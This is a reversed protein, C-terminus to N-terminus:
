SLLSDLLPPLGGLDDLVYDPRPACPDELDARRAVGTLVLVSRMDAQRAWEIDTDLRDGVFLIERPALGSPEALIRALEVQPKGVVVPQRGAATAVAAVIAGGGPLFGDDAPFTADTNTAVFLAGHLLAQQASALSDYTFSRDLGVVVARFGDRAQAPSVGAALRPALGVEALEQALGEGGVVLVPSGPDLRQRLWNATAAGSTLIIEAHAPLGFSALRAAVASRHQTSNNTVYRLLLGRALVDELAERAGPLLTTGRHIVGDIDFAVMRLRRRSM